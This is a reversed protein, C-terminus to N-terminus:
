PFRVAVRKISLDITPASKSFGRKKKHGFFENFDIPAQYPSKGAISSTGTFIWAVEISEPRGYLQRGFINMETFGSFNM